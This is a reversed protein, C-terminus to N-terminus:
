FFKAHGKLQYRKEVGELDKFNQCMMWAVATTDLTRYAINYNMTKEFATDLNYGFKRNWVAVHLLNVNSETESSFKQFLYGHGM